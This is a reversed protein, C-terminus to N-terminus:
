FFIRINEDYPIKIRPNRILVTDILNNTSSHSTITHFFTYGCEKSVLHPYSTYNFTLTDTVDNIIIVFSCSQLAPDLFLVLDKRGKINQYILETEMGVGYVTLSDTAINLGSGTEYFGGKVGSITEEYCSEPTCGSWALASAAVIVASLFSVRFRM